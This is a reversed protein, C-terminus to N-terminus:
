LNIFVESFWRLDFGFIQYIGPGISKYEIPDVMKRLVITWEILGIIQTLGLLATQRM